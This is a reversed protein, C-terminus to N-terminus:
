VSFMSKDKFFISRLNGGTRHNLDFRACAETRLSFLCLTEVQETILTLGLM